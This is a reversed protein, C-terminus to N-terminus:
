SVLVRRSVGRNRVRMHMLSSRLDKEGQGEEGLRAVSSRWGVLSHPYLPCLEHHIPMPIAAGQIDTCMYTRKHTHVYMYNDLYTHTHIYVCVPLRRHVYKRVYTSVHM